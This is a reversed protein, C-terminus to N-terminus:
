WVARGRGPSVPESAFPPQRPLEGGVSPRRLTQRYFSDSRAPPDPQPLGDEHQERRPTVLPLSEFSLFEDNVVKASSPTRESSTWARPSCPMVAGNAM